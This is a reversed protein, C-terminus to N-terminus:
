SLMQDLGREARPLGLSDPPRTVLAQNAFAALQGATFPLLPLLLPEALALLHRLPALPIVVPQRVPLGRRHRIAEILEPTTIVTPGGLEVIRGDWSPVSLAAVLAEALDEVHIPQMAVGSGFQLPLPGTALRELNALVPSGRGFVMTPRVVLSDLGSQLVIAEAALKSEAYHYHRRDPYGAAISSVFLFRKVGAERAAEVLHRTGQVNAAWLDRRSAKGTRAALHIVTEIADLHSEWDGRERLNGSVV